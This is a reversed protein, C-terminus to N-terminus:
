GFVVLNAFIVFWVVDLFHWYMACMLVGEHADATYASGRSRFATVALPVLGFIVHVGHLATLMYFTFGYLTKEGTVDHGVMVWWAWLQLALFVAGLLTTANLFRTLGKLDGARVAKLAFQITVSSVLIVVTSVWLSTPLAPMGAAWEPKGMRVAWYAVLSAAFLVALSVLFIALGLPASGPAPRDKIM